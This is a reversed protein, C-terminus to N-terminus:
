ILNVDTTLKMLLYIIEKAEDANDYIDFFGKGFLIQITKEVVGESLIEVSQKDNLFNCENSIKEM